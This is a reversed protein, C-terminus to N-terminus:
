VGLLFELDRGLLALLVDVHEGVDGPDVGPARDGLVGVGLLWAPPDRDARLLLVDGGDGEFPASAAM